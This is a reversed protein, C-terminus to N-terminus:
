SWRVSRWVPLTVWHSRRYTQHLSRLSPVDTKPDTRIVKAKFTRKDPLSVNLEDDGYVVHSNTIIYGDPTVIVGSGLGQPQFERPAPM